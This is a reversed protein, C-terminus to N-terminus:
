VHDLMAGQLVAEHSLPRNGPPPQMARERADRAAAFRNHERRPGSLDMFQSELDCRYLCEHLVRTWVSVHLRRNGADAMAKAVQPHHTLGLLGVARSLTM